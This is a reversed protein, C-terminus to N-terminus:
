ADNSPQPALIERSRLFLADVDTAHRKERLRGQQRQSTVAKIGHWSQSFFAPIFRDALQRQGETHPGPQDGAVLLGLGYEALGGLETVLEGVNGCTETEGLLLVGSSEPEAIRGGM